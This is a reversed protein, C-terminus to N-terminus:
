GRYRVRSPVSKGQGHEPWRIGSGIGSVKFYAALHIKLIEWLQSFFILM